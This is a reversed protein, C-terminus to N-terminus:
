GHLLLSRPDWLRDSHLCFRTGRDLVSGREVHLSTVISVSSGQSMLGQTMSNETKVSQTIPEAAESNHRVQNVHLPLNLTCNVGCFPMFDWLPPLHISRCNRWGWRYIPNTTMAVVRGKSGPLFLVRQIHPQTPGLALRTKNPFNRGWRSDIDSGELGYGTVIVVASDRNWLNLHLLIINKNLMGDHLLVILLRCNNGTTPKQQPCWWVTCLQSNFIQILHFSTLKNNSILWNLTHFCKIHVVHQSVNLGECGV